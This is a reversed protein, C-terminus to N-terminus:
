QRQHEAIAREAERDATKEKMDDRKDRSAKGRCIGLEVKLIGRKFYMSLPVLTHGQREAHETLRRIENRHLLLRRARVPDHNFQNGHDYPEIRADTLWVQRGDIRAFSGDLRVHGNRASKVETGCLEIGAEVRELIEYDRFAKRNTVIKKTGTAAM